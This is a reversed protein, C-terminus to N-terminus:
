VAPGHLLERLWASAASRVATACPDCMLTPDAPHHACLVPVDGEFPAAPDASEALRTSTM